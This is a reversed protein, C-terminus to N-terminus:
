FLGCVGYMCSVGEKDGFGLDVGVKYFFFKFFYKNM